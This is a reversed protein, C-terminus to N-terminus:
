ETGFFRDGFDGLGPTIFKKPTLGKDTIAVIIKINPFAKQMIKVGEPAAIVGVFLIQRQEVGLDTLIKLTGTSSGGTAIMPDLIIVQDNPSIKPLNQYYLHAKATKEDRKMGVFGISCNPFQEIFAPLLVLGSRLIVITVVSGKIKIGTTKTIPTEISIKETELVSEAELALLKALQMASDRFEARSTCKDRLKTILLNKLSSLNSTVM